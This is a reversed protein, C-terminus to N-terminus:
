GNDAELAELLLHLSCKCGKGHRNLLLHTKLDRKVREIAKEAAELRKCCDGTVTDSLKLEADELRDILRHVCNCVQCTGVSGEKKPSVVCTISSCGYGATTPKNM